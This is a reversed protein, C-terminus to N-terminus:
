RILPTSPSPNNEVTVTPVLPSVPLPASPEATGTFFGFLRSPKFRDRYPLLECLDKIPKGAGIKQAIEAFNVVHIKAGQQELGVRWLAAAEEGASHAKTGDPNDCHAFFIVQKDKFKPLLAEHIAVNVGLLGVPAVVGALGAAAIFDYSAIFDPGGECIVAFPRKEVYEIGPPYNACSGKLSMGKPNQFRPIEWNKGDLRRAQINFPDPSTVLWASQDLYRGFRLTGEKVALDVGERRYGRIRCLADREANSGETWRYPIAPRRDPPWSAKDKKPVTSLRARLKERWVERAPETSPFNGLKLFERVGVSNNDIKKALKFFDYCGGMDIGRRLAAQPVSVDKFRYVGDALYVSFSPTSDKRFPSRCKFGKVPDYEPPKELGCKEWLFDIPMTANLLALDTLDKKPYATVARSQPTAKKPATGGENELLPIQAAVSKQTPVIQEPLGALKSYDFPYPEDGDKEGFSKAIKVDVKVKVIPFLKKMAKTMAERVVAGVMEAQEHPADVVIEDHIVGVLHAEKPLKPVLTVLAIKFADACGGQVPTNVTAAFKSWDSDTEAFLRRRGMKTRVEGAEGVRELRRVEEWAAEHFKGISKYLQFFGDRFRQSEALSLEVGHNNKAYTQMGKAQQGFIFGFNLAKGKQREEKTVHDLTKKLLVSMTQSHIDAGDEFAKLMVPDESVAAMGRLEIQSYDSCILVRGEGPTFCHRIPGHAVGLLNPGECTFRGTDTGLQDFTAHIRGDPGVAAMYSAAQQAQVRHKRYERLLAAAPHNSTALMAANSSPLNINNKKFSAMISDHSNPDLGPDNLAARLRTAADLSKTEMEFYLLRLRDRDAPWGVKEMQTVVPLLRGELRVVRDMGNAVFSEDLAHKIQLLADTPFKGHEDADSSIGPLVDDLWASVEPATVGTFVLRHVSVLDFVHDVRVRRLDLQKLLPRADQMVIERTDFVPQLASLDTFEAQDMSWTDQGDSIYFNGGDATLALSTKNQVLKEALSGLHEPSDVVNLSM